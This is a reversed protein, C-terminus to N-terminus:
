GFALVILRLHSRLDDGPGGQELGCTSAPLPPLGRAGAVDAHLLPDLRLVADGLHRGDDEARLHLGTGGSDGPIISSLEESQAFLQHPFNTRFDPEHGPPYTSWVCSVGSVYGSTCFQEDPATTEGTVPLRRIGGGVMFVKGTARPKWADPNCFAPQSGHSACRIAAAPDREPEIQIMELDAEAAQAVVRGVPTSGVSIEAGMPFCHKATVVYRTARSKFNLVGLRSPLWIMVPGATCSSEASTLKTGAAVPLRSRDPNPPGVADAGAVGVSTVLIPVLLLALLARMAM